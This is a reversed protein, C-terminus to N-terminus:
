QQLIVGVSSREGRYSIRRSAQQALVGIRRRTGQWAELTGGGCLISRFACLAADVRHPGEKSLGGRGRAAPQTHPAPSASPGGEGRGARGSAQAGCRAKYSPAVGRMM